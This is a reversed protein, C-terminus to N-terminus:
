LYISTVLKNPIKTVEQNLEKCSLPQVCQEFFDARRIEKVTNIYGCDM